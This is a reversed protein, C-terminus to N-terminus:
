GWLNLFAQQKASRIRAAAMQQAMGVSWDSQSLSHQIMALKQAEAERGYQYDLKMAANTKDAEMQTQAAAANAQGKAQAADIGARAAQMKGNSIGARTYAKAAARENGMMDGQAQLSGVAGSADIYNPQQWTSNVNIGPRGMGGAPKSGPGKLVPTSKSLSSDTGIV